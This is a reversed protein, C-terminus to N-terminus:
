DDQVIELRSVDRLISRINTPFGTRNFGIDLTM